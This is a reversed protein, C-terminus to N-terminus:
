CYDNISDGGTWELGQALCYVKEVGEETFFAGVKMFSHTIKLLLQRLQGVSLAIKVKPMKLLFM